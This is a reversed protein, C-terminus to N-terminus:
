QIELKGFNPTARTSRTILMVIEMYIHECLISVYPCVCMRYNWIDCDVYYSKLIFWRVSVINCLVMVDSKLWFCSGVCVIVKINSMFLNMLFNMCVLMGDNLENCVVVFSAFSVRSKSVSCRSVASEFTENWLFSDICM